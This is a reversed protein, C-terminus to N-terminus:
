APTWVAFGMGMGTGAPSRYAPIYDVLEFASGGLAGAVAVWNRIESTGSMLQAQSLAGLRDRDEHLIAALVDRDLAEDVVFHSLGGSAVVAVREEGPWSGIARAMAAGFDWCRAATPQNPPYYTNVFVPILPTVMAGMLRRRVFTYAHGISRGTPQRDLWTLDFGELTLASVLHRALGPHSPYTEPVNGHRAWYAPWIAPHYASLGPPRDETADGTYICFTPRHDSGFIEEQDDGVVVVVDPRAQRLREALQAIASQIREHKEQRVSPTLEATLTAPARALLAAWDLRPNTRDREAHLIWQDPPTSAQPSHSTALGLVIRAM